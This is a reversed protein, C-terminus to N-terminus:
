RPAPRGVPMTRHANMMRYPLEVRLSVIDIAQYSYSFTSSYAAQQTVVEGSKWIVKEPNAPVGPYKDGSTRLFSGYPFGTSMHAHPLHCKFGAVEAALHISCIFNYSPWGLSLNM